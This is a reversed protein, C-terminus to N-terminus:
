RRAIENGHEENTMELHGVSTHGRVGLGCIAKDNKSLKRRKPQPTRAFNIQPIKKANLPTTGGVLAFKASILAKRGAQTLGKFVM